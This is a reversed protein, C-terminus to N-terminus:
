VRLPLTLNLIKNRVKKIEAKNLLNVIFYLTEPDLSKVDDTGIIEILKLMLMGIEDKEILASINGPVTLNKSLVNKDFEKPMEFGDSSLTELLIIDKISFFYKKNKSIKKYISLFDKNAKEKNPNQDVFYKIVKSRHM